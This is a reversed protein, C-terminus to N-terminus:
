GASVLGMRSQQTAYFIGESLLFDPLDFFEQNRRCIGANVGNKSKAINTRSQTGRLVGTFRRAAFVALEERLLVLVIFLLPKLAVEFTLTAM